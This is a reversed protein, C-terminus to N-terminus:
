KFNSLQCCYNESLPLQIKWLANKVIPKSITSAPLLSVKPDVSSSDDLHLNAPELSQLKELDSRISHLMLFKSSFTGMDLEDLRVSLTTM